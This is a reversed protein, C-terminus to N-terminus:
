RKVDLAKSTASQSNQHTCSGAEELGVNDAEMVLRIEPEALLSRV